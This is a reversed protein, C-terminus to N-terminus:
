GPVPATVAFSIWMGTPVRTFRTPVVASTIWESRAAPASGSPRGSGRGRSGSGARPRGARASGRATSPTRRAAARACPPRPRRRAAPRLEAGPERVLRAARSGGLVASCRRPCADEERSAHEPQWVIRPVGARPLAPGSRVCTASAGCARRASSGSRARRRQAVPDRSGCCAFGPAFIGSRAARRARLDVRRRRGPSGATVTTSAGAGRRALSRSSRIQACRGPTSPQSVVVSWLRIPRM